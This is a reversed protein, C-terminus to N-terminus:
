YYMVSRLSKGGTSFFMFISVMFTFYKMMLHSKPLAKSFRVKWILQSLLCTRFPKWHKAFTTTKQFFRATNVFTLCRALRFSWQLKIRYLKIHLFEQWGQPKCVSPLESGPWYSSCLYQTRTVAQM